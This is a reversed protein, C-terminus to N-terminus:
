KKEKQKAEEAATWPPVIHNMRAYAISQGLHEHLHLEATLLVDRFTTERGFMKAPKDLDEDTTKMIAGRINEFSKKLLELVKPKETINKEADPGPRDASTVGIFSPFLYNSGSIHVYVESVSRVGEMPRWSYTEAPMAGALDIIKKEVDGLQQLLEGRFGSVKATTESKMNDQATAASFRILIAAILLMYVVYRKM